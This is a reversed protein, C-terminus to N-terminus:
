KSINNRAKNFRAMARHYKMMAQKNTYGFGKICPVDENEVLHIDRGTPGHPGIEPVSRVIFGGSPKKNPTMFNEWEVKKSM